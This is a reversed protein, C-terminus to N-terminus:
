PVFLSLKEYSKRASQPRPQSSLMFNGQVPSLLQCIANWSVLELLATAAIVPRCVPLPSPTNPSVFPGIGAAPTCPALLSPRPTTPSLVAASPTSPTDRVAWPTSPLLVP